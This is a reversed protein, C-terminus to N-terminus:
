VRIHKMYISSSYWHAEVSAEPCAVAMQKGMM